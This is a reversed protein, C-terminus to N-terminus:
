EDITIRLFFREVCGFSYLAIQTPNILLINPLAVIANFLPQAIALNSAELEDTAAELEIVAALFTESLAGINEATM